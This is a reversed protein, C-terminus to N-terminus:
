VADIYDERVFIQVASDLQFMVLCPLDVCLGFASRKFVVVYADDFMRRDVVPDMGKHLYVYTWPRQGPSGM